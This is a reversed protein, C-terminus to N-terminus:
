RAYAPCGSSETRRVGRAVGGGLEDHSFRRSTRSDLMYLDHPDFGLNTRQLSVLSRVVLAAGVVLMASLAM